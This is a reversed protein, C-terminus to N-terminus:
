APTAYLFNQRPGQVLHEVKYGASVLLPQLHQHTCTGDRLQHTEFAMNFRNRKLFDLSGRVLGLEAGEIDCKMYDPVAALHECADMLTMVRVMKQRDERVYFLSEVLGAAQTGDMSFLAEGSEEGLAVDVIVVNGVRNKELNMRLYRRAQDDPEFAFVRGSPGVMQSLEITTLGAHAGVDFVTMGSAPMFRLTYEPMSDDEAITPATVELGTRRYKHAAPKTFDITKNGGDDDAELMDFFHSHMESIIPVLSLDELRIFITRGNKALSISDCHFGIRFGRKRLAARLALQTLPNGGGWKVLQDKVRQVVSLRAEWMREQARHDVANDAPSECLGGFVVYGFDTNYGIALSM